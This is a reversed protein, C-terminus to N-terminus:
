YSADVMGGCRVKEGDSCGPLTSRKEPDGPNIPSFLTKVTLIEDTPEADDDGAQDMNWVRVRVEQPPESALALGVDIEPNIPEGWLFVPEIHEAAHFLM